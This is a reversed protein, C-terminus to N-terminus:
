DGQIVLVMVTKYQTLLFKVLVEKLNLFKHTLIYKYQIFLSYKTVSNLSLM